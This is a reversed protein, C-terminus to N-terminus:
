CRAGCILVCLPPRPRPKFGSARAPPPTQEGPPRPKNHLYLAPSLRYTSSPAPRQRTHTAAERWLQLWLHQAGGLGAALGLRASGLRASHLRARRGCRLMASGGAAGPGSPSSPGTRKARLPARRCFFTCSTFFWLNVARKKLCGVKQLWQVSKMQHSVAGLRGKGRRPRRRGRGQRGGAGVETGAGGAGGGPAAAGPLHAAAGPLAASGAGDRKATGCPGTEEGPRAKRGPERASLETACLKHPGAQFKASSKNGRAPFARHCGQQSSLEGLSHSRSSLPSSFKRRM